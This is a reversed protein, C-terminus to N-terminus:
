DHILPEAPDTMTRGLRLTMARRHLVIDLPEVLIQELARRFRRGLLLSILHLAPRKLGAAGGPGSPGPRGSIAFPLTIFGEKTSERKRPLDKDITTATAQRASADSPRGNACVRTASVTTAM